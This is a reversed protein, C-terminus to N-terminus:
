IHILSLVLLTHLADYTSGSMSAQNLKHILPRAVDSVAGYKDSPADIASIHM